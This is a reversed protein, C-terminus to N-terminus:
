DGDIEPRPHRIRLHFRREAQVEVVHEGTVRFLRFPEPAQQAVVHVTGPPAQTGGARVANRARFSYSSRYSRRSRSCRSDASISSTHPWPMKLQVTSPVFITCGM